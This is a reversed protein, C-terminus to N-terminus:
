ASVTPGVSPHDFRIVALLGTVGGLSGGRDEGGPRRRVGSRSIRPLSATSATEAVEVADAGLDGSPSSRGSV